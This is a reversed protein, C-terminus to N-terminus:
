ARQGSRVVYDFLTGVYYLLTLKVNIISIIVDALSNEEDTYLQYLNILKVSLGDHPRFYIISVYRNLLRLRKRPSPDAFSIM